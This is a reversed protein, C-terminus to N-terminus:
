IQAISFEKYQNETKEYHARFRTLWEPLKIKDAYKLYSGNNIWGVIGMHSDKPFLNSMDNVKLSSYKKPKNTVLTAIFNNGQKDTLELLTVMTGEHTRSRFVALPKEMSKPLDKIDDLDYTHLNKNKDGRKLELTSVRLEMPVSPIGAYQMVGSSYGLQLTKKQRKMIM